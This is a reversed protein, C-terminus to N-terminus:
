AAALSCATRRAAGWPWLASVPPAGRAPAGANLAHDHLWMEIEAVRRRLPAAAAGAPLAPVAAGAFRAPEASAVAAIEPTSLLFDGCPLAM